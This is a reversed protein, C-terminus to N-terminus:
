EPQRLVKILEILKKFEKSGSIIALGFYWLIGVGIGILLQIWLVEFCGIVLYVVIGMTSSYIFPPLLDRLQRFLGLGILKGTYHTNIVLNIISSLVLGYCMGLIGFPISCVLIIAGIVKKVIELRLFIDSRGEVQLLNLNIAQVPYLMFSFCLIQLLPVVPLWEDNLVLLILPRAVVATGTMLPFVLFAALAIFSRYGNKLVEKDERVKCLVPFAVRQLVTTFNVSLFSGFQNARTYYGLETARFLRGIVILYLNSYLTNILGAIALKSGFGFLEKFSAKSFVYIPRWKSCIWLLIASVLVNSLQYGVIAWVGVGSYALIIGLMGSAMSAILSVRAQTKFDLDSTLLAKQVLVFSNFIVCLSVIRTLMVLEPQNYFDAILPSTFYLLLYFLLGFAINFYFVTSMDVTDRDQKRILAQSFGSDVLSQAVDIFVVIMGVLGYDAPTLVNAMLLMVIFSVSQVSLREVMSWFSSKITQSKLSEAM